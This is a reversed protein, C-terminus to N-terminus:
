EILLLLGVFLGRVIGQIKLSDLYGVKRGVTLREVADECM